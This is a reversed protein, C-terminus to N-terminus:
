RGGVNFFHERAFRRADRLKELITNSGPQIPANETVRVTGTKPHLTVWFTAPMELNSRGDEAFTEGTNADIQRDWEGVCFYLMENVRASQWVYRIGLRRKIYLMNVHGTPSFMVYIDDAPDFFAPVGDRTKNNNGDFGTTEGGSFVIDVITGQPMVVPPIWALTPFVFRSVRYEMADNIAFTDQLMLHYYPELLRVRNGAEIFEIAISCGLRNFQVADGLRFHARATRVDLNHDNWDTGVWEWVGPAVEQFRYPIIEGDDVRVRVDPPNLFDPLPDGHYFRLQIATTSATEFPVLRVGYSRGDQIAKARAQQFAGALVQAANSTRRTELMPTLIPVSIALLLVIIAAVVLLEVLTMGQRSNNLRRNQM